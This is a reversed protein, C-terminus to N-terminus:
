AYRKRMAESMAEGFHNAQEEAHLKATLRSVEPAKRFTEERRRRSDKLRLELLQDNAVAPPPPFRRKARVRDAIRTWVGM